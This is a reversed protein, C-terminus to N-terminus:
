PRRIDNHGESLDGFHELQLTALVGEWDCVICALCMVFGALLSIRSPCLAAATEEQVLWYWELRTGQLGQWGTHCSVTRCQSENEAPTEQSHYPERQATDKKGSRHWRTM